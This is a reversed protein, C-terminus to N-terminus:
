EGFDLRADKIRPPQGIWWYLGRIYGSIIEKIESIKEKKNESNKITEIFGNEILEKNLLYIQKLNVDLDIKPDELDKNILEKYIKYTEKKRDQDISKDVSYVYGDEYYPKRGARGIIQKFESPLLPRFTRGDFKKLM